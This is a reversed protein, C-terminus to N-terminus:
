TGKFPGPWLIMVMWWIVCFSLNHSGINYSVGGKGSIRRITVSNSGRSEICEGTWTGCRSDTVQLYVVSIIMLIFFSFSFYVNWIQFRYRIIQMLILCYWKESVVPTCVISVIESIACCLFTCRSLGVFVNVMHNLWPETLRGYHM